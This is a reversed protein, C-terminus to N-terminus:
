SKAAALVALDDFTVYKEKVIEATKQDYLRFTLGRPGPYVEFAKMGSKDDTKTYRPSGKLIEGAGDRFLPKKKEDKKAM